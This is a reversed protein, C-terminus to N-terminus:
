IKRVQVLGTNSTFAGAPSFTDRSLVNACGGRDTGDKDPTYWAGEAIDVVGPMIRETVRAPIIMEGRDNFVRVKEGDKIGRTLADATNIFVAQPELETLRQVGYFQSHVRLKPHTTILQLPYKEVLPDNTSEWTEIYKPVPPILPNEMDALQQSYIEIKGSPTPFPNNQPDDIQEKFAICSTSPCVEHLVHKKITDYDIADESGAVMWELREEETKEDFDFIGMREALAAAIEMHSRAESYPEVVKNMYGYFPMTNGTTIDSRELFYAAPLLIDAYRATATLYQEQVVIFELVKLAKIGKNINPSQNLYNWNTVYLMKYDAPYGGAKGKIVADWVESNHLRVSSGFAGAGPLSNKRCKAKRDLPNEETPMRGLSYHYIGGFAGTGSNGGFIGVNGTMAALVIMARHFQEGNATRGASLGPMLAAPRSLAFERALSSIVEARVGTISEAWLPTKPIGDEMGMVYDKFRDFGVTYTDLFPKDHLNEAIITYAMAILMATDTGPRIPIWQDAFTAASATYRPDICIIKIGKEKARALYWRTGNGHVSNVADLGWMIILSSNLLDERANGTETTGYTALAAFIAGECSPVGWTTSYGGNLAFLRHMLGPDHLRGHDGGGTILLIAAPGYMEKVQKVQGAVTDLAEDWSIRKFKGEGREGDRKMPYKLRDSSNIWQGHSLGKACPL